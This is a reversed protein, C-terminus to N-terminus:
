AEVAPPVLYRYEHHTVFGYPAYLALAPANEPMTQLYAKTAGREVAWALSSEVIARAHGSRRHAPSTEVCALGAWEGTVVVRGIAEVPTGLRAFGVRAPGELVARAEDVQGEVRGYLGLWDDDAASRVTVRPDHAPSSALDAVQVIAGGRYGQAPAWGADLFLTEGASGVVTQARPTLGRTGYFDLVAAVADDAALGPDGHVAVSNARGTFAGSARLEWEGLAVSEIAPWGRSTIRTLDDAGVERAPRSRAPRDPVQKLLLVDTGAVSVVSGDRRELLITRCDADVVRGVVDTSAHSGSHLRYRITVRRGILTAPDPMTPAQWLFERHRTTPEM